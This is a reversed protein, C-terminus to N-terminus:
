PPTIDRGGVRTVRQPTAVTVDPRSVLGRYHQQAVSPTCVTAVNAIAVSIPVLRADSSRNINV